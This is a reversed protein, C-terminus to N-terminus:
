WHQMIALWICCFPYAMSVFSIQSRWVGDPFAQYRGSLLLNTGSIPCVMVGLGWGMLFSMALVDPRIMAHALVVAVAAIGVVPHIGGAALLIIVAMGISAATAGTVHLTLEPLSWSILAALGTGLVGAALFLLVEPGMDPLDRRIYNLSRQLPRSKRSAALSYLPVALTVLSVISVQPVLMHCAFVTGALVLPGRINAFDFPYGQFNAVAERNTRAMWWVTGALMLQSFPLGWLLVPTLRAGPAQSLAVGMAVFFPSWLAALGFGRALVQGQIKVLSGSHLALRDGFLVMASFNITAGSWHIGFLTKALAARGRPLDEASDPRPVMRLFGVAALMAIIAQNHTFASLFLTRDVQAAALAALGLGALCLSQVRVRTSVRNFLLLAVTLQLLGSLPALIPSWVGALAAPVSWFLLWGAFHRTKDM